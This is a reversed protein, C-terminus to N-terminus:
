VSADAASASGTQAGRDAALSVRRRQAKACHESGNWGDPVMRALLVGVLPPIQEDCCKWVGARRNALAVEVGMALGMFGTINQKRNETGRRVRSLMFRPVSGGRESVRKM